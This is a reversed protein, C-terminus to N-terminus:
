EKEERYKDRLDIGQVYKWEITSKPRYFSSNSLPSDQNVNKGGHYRGIMKLITKDVYHSIQNFWNKSPKVEESRVDIKSELNTNM